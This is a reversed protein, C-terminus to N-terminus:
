QYQIGHIRCYDFVQKDWNNGEYWRNQVVQVKRVEGLYSLLQPDYTNSIGILRVKGEDQLEMLTRWAEMTRNVTEM